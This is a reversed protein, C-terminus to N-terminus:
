VIYVPLKIAGTKESTAIPKEEHTDTITGKCGSWNYCRSYKSTRVGVQNYIENFCCLTHIDIELNSRAKDNLVLTIDIKCLSPGNGQKGLM